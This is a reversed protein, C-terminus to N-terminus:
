FVISTCIFLALLREIASTMGRKDTECQDATVVGDSVVAMTAHTRRVRGGGGCRALAQATLVKRATCARARSRECSICPPHRMSCRQRRPTGTVSQSSPNSPRRHPQLTRPLRRSKRPLYPPAFCSRHSPVFCSGACLERNMGRWLQERWNNELLEGNEM